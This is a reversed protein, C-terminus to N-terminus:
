IGNKQQTALERDAMKLLKVHFVYIISYFFTLVQKELVDGYDYSYPYLRSVRATKKPM